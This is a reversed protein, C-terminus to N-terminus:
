LQLVGIGGWDGGVCFEIKEGEFESWLRAVGGGTRWTNVIDHFAILGGPVVLKGFREYDRSVSEYSHDADIFLFGVGVPVGVKAVVKGLTELSSTDGEIFQFRPYETEMQRARISFEPEQYSDSGIRDVGIVRADPLLEHWLVSTGGHRVGLEVVCDAPISNWKSRLFEAFPRIEDPWQEM